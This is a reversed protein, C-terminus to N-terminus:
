VSGILYRRRLVWRSWKATRQRPGEIRSRTRAGGRGRARPAKKDTLAKKRGRTEKRAALEKEVTNMTTRYTALVSLVAAIDSSAIQQAVDRMNLDRLGKLRAYSRHSSEIERDIAIARDDKYHGIMVNAVVVLFVTLLLFSVTIRVRLM